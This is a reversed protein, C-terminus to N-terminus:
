FEWDKLTPILSHVTMDLHIPTVSVYGDHVARIDTGEVSVDGTPAEGGIWYYPRGYPDIRTVLEDHYLSMGQRTIQMGRIQAEPLAPINVNLLTLLPLGHDIVQAVVRRAIQAAVLYDVDTSANRNDLSFAVSPKGSITGEFAAAVTGSYTLDQGLNPGRNIGSVVLDVPESIFGLLAVAVCDAPSGDSSYATINDAFRVPNIRLPKTLTKRHGNTSQNEEPAIVTVKGFECMARALAMLGPASIGDDNSVLLHMLIEREM